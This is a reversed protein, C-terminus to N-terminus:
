ITSRVELTAPFPVVLPRGADKGSLLSTLGLMAAFISNWSFIVVGHPAYGGYMTYVGMVPLSANDGYGFAPRSGKLTRCHRANSRSVKSTHLGPRLLLCLVSAILPLDYYSGTYYADHTIAVNIGQAALLYFAAAGFFSRYLV